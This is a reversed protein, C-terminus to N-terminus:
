RRAALSALVAGTAAVLVLILGFGVSEGGSLLGGTSGLGSASSHAKSILHLVRVLDYVALGLSTFATLIALLRVAGDDSVALLGGLVLLAIGCIFTFWGNLLTYGTIETGTVSVKHGLATASVWATVSGVMMVIGCVLVLFSALTLDVSSTGRRDYGGYYADPYFPDSPYM